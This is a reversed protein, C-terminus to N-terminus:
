AEDELIKAVAHKLPSLDEQLVQWIVNLDTDWYVHVLIDRMGAIARWPIEPYQGRIEEPIQKVAEGIIELKKIVATAKEENNSFAEFDVDLTFREIADIARFIDRAFAEVRRREM